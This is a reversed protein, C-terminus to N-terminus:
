EKEVTTEVATEIATEVATGVVCSIASVDAYTAGSSRTSVFSSSKWIVVMYCSYVVMYCGM